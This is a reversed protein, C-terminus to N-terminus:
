GPAHGLDALLAAHRPTAIGVQESYASLWGNRWPLEKVSARFDPIGVSYAVLLDALPGPPIAADLAHALVPAIEDSLVEVTARRRAVTEGVTEDFRDGLAGFVINWALKVGIEAAFESWEPVARAPVGAAVLLAAVAAAHPGHFLSPAGPTVPATRSTAAFYILGLTPRPLGQSALLPVVMGNQVFVLDPRNGAPTAAIVDPLADARTCVIVPTGVAVRDLPRDIGPAPPGLGGAVGGRDVVRVSVGVSAAARVIASGVRGPGVVVIAAPLESM